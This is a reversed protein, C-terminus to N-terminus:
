IEWHANLIVTNVLQGSTSKKKSKISGHPKAKGIEKKKIKSRVCRATRITQDDIKLKTEDTMKIKQTTLM